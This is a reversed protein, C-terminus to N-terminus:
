DYHALPELDAPDTIVAMLKLDPSRDVNQGRAKKLSKDYGDDGDRTKRIRLYRVEPVGLRSVDIALGGFTQWRSYVAVQPTTFFTEEPSIALPPGLPQGDRDIAQFTLWSNGGANGREFYLLEGRVDSIAPDDDKVPREFAIDLSFDPDRTMDLYHNLNRDAFAARVGEGFALMDEASWHKDKGGDAFGGLYRLGRRAEQGPPVAIHDGGRVRVREGQGGRGQFNGAWAPRYFQEHRSGDSYEVRDLFANGQVDGQSVASGSVHFVARQSAPEQFAHSFSGDDKALAPTAAGAAGLGLVLSFTSLSRRRLTSLASKM